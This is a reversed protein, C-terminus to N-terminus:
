RKEIKVFFEALLGWSLLSGFLALFLFSAAPYVISQTGQLFLYISAIGLGFGTLGFIFAFFAFWLMPRENFHILMKITIIDPLAKWVRSLGYKAKGYKRPRHNVVIEAIRAGALTSVAPIFRHM